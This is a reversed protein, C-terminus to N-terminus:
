YAYANKPKDIRAADTLVMTPIFGDDAHSSGPRITGTVRMWTDDPQGAVTAAAPGSLHVRALQADAACCVIVVRGLDVVGGHAVTFGTLTITRGDLSHTSDAAARMVTEPLSVEPAPGPPLAPFPRPQPASVAAPPPNAGRADLPPPVVFAVLAIPVLLVWTLWTQHAHGHEDPTVNRLGRLDFVVGTVGLVVLVAAAAILWPLLAPRVYNLYSGKFLMVATSLGILLLVLHQTARSM